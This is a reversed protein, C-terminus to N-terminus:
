RETETDTYVDISEQHGDSGDVAGKMSNAKPM